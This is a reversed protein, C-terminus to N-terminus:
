LNHSRNTRGVPWRALLICSRPFSSVQQPARCAFFRPEACRCCAARYQLYILFGASLPHLAQYVAHPLPFPFPSESSSLLSLFLSSSHPHLSVSPRSPTGSRLPFYVSLARIGGVGQWGTVLQWGVLWCYRHNLLLDPQCVTRNAIGRGDRRVRCRRGALCRQLRWFHSAGAQRLRRCRTPVRRRAGPGPFLPRPAALSIRSM